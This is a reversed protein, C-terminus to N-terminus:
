PQRKSGGPISRDIERFLDKLMAEVEGVKPKNKSSFGSDGEFVIHSPPAHAKAKDERRRAKLLASCLLPSSLLASCLLASSLLTARPSLLRAGQESSGRCRCARVKTM